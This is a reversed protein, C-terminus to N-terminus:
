SFYYKFIDESGSTYEEDEDALVSAEAIVGGGGWRLIDKAQEVRAIEDQEKKAKKEANLRKKEAAVRKKGEQDRKKEAPTLGAVREAETVKAEQDRRIKDQKKNWQDLLKQAAGREKRKAIEVPDTRIFREMLYNDFQGAVNDHTLIRAYQRNLVLEDRDYHNLAQMINLSDMFQNSIKGNALLETIMSPMAEKMRQREETPFECYAQDLIRDYDVSSQDLGRLLPDSPVPSPTERHPGTVTFGQKIHDEKLYKGKFVYVLKLCGRYIKRIFEATEKAHPYKVSLSQYAEKISDELVTNESLNVGNRALNDMGDKVSRFTPARDNAQHIGSTSPSLKIFDIYSKNMQDRIEGDMGAELAVNEGDSSLVYHMVSGDINRYNYTNRSINITPLVINQYYWKWSASSGARTKTFMIKGFSTNGFSTSLGQVIAFHFEEENMTEVAVHVVLESM